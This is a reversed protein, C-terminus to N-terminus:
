LHQKHENLSNSYIIIDDFFVGTFTRHPRFLKEMFCNFTAPANTLDFPMFIYEYLGFTTRFASKVIDQDVIRIQHYGSKLDIRSLYTSGQLKDVLDEVQPIPFRNRITIRNLARYIVCMRYTDDKKQM